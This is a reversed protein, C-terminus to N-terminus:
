QAFSRRRQHELNIPKGAADINDKIAFPVGWLPRAPDYDGLARAQALLEAKDFLCLFIHPDGVAEIRAYVQEIVEEPSLGAAYAARLSPLTLPLDAM